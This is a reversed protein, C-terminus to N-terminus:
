LTSWGGDSPLVVGNVNPADDSLLWLLPRAIEDPQVIPTVTALMPAVREQAYDSRFAIDMDTAVGGPAVANARIGRPAYYYAISKVLGNLAHKSTTYAAGSLSSRFSAESSVFVLTGRGRDLMQPLLSRAVRMPMTVNLDLVRHWTDDDMEGCPLWGDTIGAVNVLGDIAGEGAAVVEDVADQRTLDGVVTRLRDGDAEKALADLRDGAVDAAIVRAGEALLQLSTARGIGGGAGTVVITRDAFRQPAVGTAAM